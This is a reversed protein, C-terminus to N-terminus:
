TSETIVEEFRKFFAEFFRTAAGSVIRSGIQAIKGGVMAEIEYTLETGEQCDQLRVRAIGKAFGAAGGKGEGTLTYSEAEVIDSLTVKGRFTAKVPGVKLTVTAEYGGDPTEVMEKCGPISLKLMNPDNLAEWVSCREAAIKRSGTFEM